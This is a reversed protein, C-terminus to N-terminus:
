FLPEDTFLPPDGHEVEGFDLRQQTWDDEPAKWTDRGASDLRRSEAKNPWRGQTARFLSERRCAEEAREIRNRAASV